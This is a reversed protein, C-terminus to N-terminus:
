EDPSSSRAPSRRTPRGPAGLARRREAQTLPVGPGQGSENWSLRWVAALLGILFFWTRAFMSFGLADFTAFSVTGAVLAAMLGQVLDRMSPEVLRRRATIGLVIPTVIVAILVFLGVVGTEVVTGLLQNDLYIFEEPLFTGPGMGFVPREHFLENIIEYDDTRGSVSPDEGAHEFLARVTGLLGPVAVRIAVVAVAGVVLARRRLRPGWSALMVIVGALLVLPATRSVTMPIALGLLVLVIRGIKRDRDSRGFAALHMAIPFTMGLVVGAEIAHNATGLVRAFDSRIQVANDRNLVLGPIQVSMLDYLQWFQLVAVFGVYGGGIAIRRGLAYLNDLNRIGDAAVLAPGVLSLVYLLSRHAGLIQVGELPRTFAMGFCLFTVGVQAMLVPRLPQRGREGGLSRTVRSAFWWGFLFLGFLYSPPGVAGFPPVVQSAPLAFVLILYVTLLATEDVGRRPRADRAPASVAGERHRADM